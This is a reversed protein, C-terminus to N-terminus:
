YKIEVMDFMCLGLKSIYIQLSNNTTVFVQLLKHPQHLIKKKESEILKNITKLYYHSPFVNHHYHVAPFIM